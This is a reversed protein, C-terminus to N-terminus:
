NFATLHKAQDLFTLEIIDQRGFRYEFWKSEDSLGVLVNRNGFCLSSLTKGNTIQTSKTMEITYRGRKSNLVGIEFGTTSNALTYMDDENIICISTLELDGINLKTSILSGIESKAYIQDDHKFIIKGADTIGMIESKKYMKETDASDYINQVVTVKKGLTNFITHVNGNSVVFYKNNQSKATIDGEVKETKLIEESVYDLSHLWSDNGEGQIFYVKRPAAWFYDSVGVSSKTFDTARKWTKLKINFIYIDFINDRSKGLVSLLQGDTSWQINQWKRRELNITVKAGLTNSIIITDDNSIYAYTYGSLDLHSIEYIDNPKSQSIPNTTNSANNINIQINNNQNSSFNFLVLSIIIFLIAFVTILTIKLKAYQM